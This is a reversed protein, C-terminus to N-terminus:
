KMYQKFELIKGKESPMVVGFFDKNKSVKEHFKFKNETRFSHLCNLSYFNGHHKSTIGNLLTSLRKVALYHQSEKEKNLFTLLIILKECKLDINSVYVPCIKKQKAHSINLSIKLNNKEYGKGIM